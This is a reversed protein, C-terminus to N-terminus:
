TSLILIIAFLSGQIALRYFHEDNTLEYSVMCIFSWVLLIGAMDKCITDIIFGFDM